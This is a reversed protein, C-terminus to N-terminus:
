AVNLKMVFALGGPAEGEEKFGRREYWAKSDNNTKHVNLEVIKARFGRPAPQVTLDILASGVGRKRQDAAVHLEYLFVTGGRGRWASHIAFGKVLEGATVVHVTYSKTFYAGFADGNRAYGAMNAAELAALQAQLANVMLQMRAPDAAM